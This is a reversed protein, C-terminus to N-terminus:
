DLGQGEGESFRPYTVAKNVTKQVELIAPGSEGVEFSSIQLKQCFGQFDYGLGLSKQFAYSTPLNLRKKVSKM